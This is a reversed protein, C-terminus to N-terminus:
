RYDAVRDLCPEVCRSAGLSLLGKPDVAGVVLGFSGPGALFRAFWGCGAPKPVFALPTGEAFPVESCRPTATRYESAGSARILRVWRVPGPLMTPGLVGALVEIRKWEAFPTEVGAM